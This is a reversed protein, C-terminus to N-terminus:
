SWRCCAPSRRRRTRARDSLDIRTRLRPRVGARWAWAHYGAGDDRADVFSDWEDRDRETATQIHWADSPPMHGSAQPRRGLAAARQRAVVSESKLMSQISDFRFDSVLREM